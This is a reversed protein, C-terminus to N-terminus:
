LVVSIGNNLCTNTFHLLKIVHEKHPPSLPVSLRMYELHFDLKMCYRLLSIQSEGDFLFNKSGSMGGASVYAVNGSPCGFAAESVMEAELLNWLSEGTPSTKVCHLVPAVTHQCFWVYSIPWFIEWLQNEKRLIECREVSGAIHDWLLAGRLKCVTFFWWHSLYEWWVARLHSM